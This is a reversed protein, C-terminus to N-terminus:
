RGLPEKSLLKMMPGDCIFCNLEVRENILFIELESAFMFSTHGFRAVAKNM